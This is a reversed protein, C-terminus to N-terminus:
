ASAPLTRIILTKASLDGSAQVFKDVGATITSKDVITGDTHNIVEVIRLGEIAGVAALDVAGGSADDGTVSWATVADADLKAGTVAAAALKATTVALAAIKGATVALAALKAETVAADDLKATTVIGDELSVTTGDTIQSNLAAILADLLENISPSGNYGRELRTPFTFSM